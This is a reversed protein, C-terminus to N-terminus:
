DVEVVVQEGEHAVQVFLHQKLRGLVYQAALLKGLKHDLKKIEPVLDPNSRLFVVMEVHVPTTHM